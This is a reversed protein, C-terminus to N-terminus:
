IAYNILIGTKLFHCAMRKSLQDKTLALVNSNSNIQNLAQDIDVSKAAIYQLRNSGSFKQFQSNTTFVIPQPFFGPTTKGIGVIVARQGNIEVTDGVSLPTKTGDKSIPALFDQASNSDIIVSGESRLDEYRGEILEPAGIITEDDIGDEAVKYLGTPTSLLQQSYNIPVAWEVSDTGRVYDLYSKPMARIIDEGQTSPDIVWIDPHPVIEVIRYSRSILGLFIASQQSILLIALFIGFIVGIFASRNGILMKFAVEIM